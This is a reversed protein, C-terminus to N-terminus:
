YSSVLETAVQVIREVSPVYFQEMVPAFPVPTDPAGIRRIPAALHGFCNEGIRAAVEAGWGATLNDEEVIVLKGTNRVSEAVTEWDFPVLTRADVIEAEIGAEALAKAAQLSKHVMLLSALITVHTGPRVVKAQGFPILYEEEPVFALVEIGGAEKRSGKSGYLLKHEFFLVPNDDRIATKLLGKGDYPNSPCAVKLGPVHMFFAELSQGHQAGRTTAGVPARMVMPVYLKGGSM